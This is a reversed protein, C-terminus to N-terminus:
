VIDAFQRELHKFYKYGAWLLFISIAAAIGLFKLEPPQGQVVAHRYGEVIVAMPNLSMYLGYFLEGKKRISSASYLIPTAFMWIQIILPMAFRFDRYLVTFASLLLCVGMTFALQVALLPVVYLVNWTPAVRYFALLGVYIGSAVLFDFLAAFVSSLPIIERPFYIKTIIQSNSILSPVAFSLATQFFTWTLLGTYSFVAYPMGTDGRMGAFQSFFIAFVVMLSFPQLVAWLTGLTTQKYRIKIERQTVLQLLEVHRMLERLHALLSDSWEITNALQPGDPPPAAPSPEETLIEKAVLSASM